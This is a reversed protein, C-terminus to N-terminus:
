FSSDKVKGVSPNQHDNETTVAGYVTDFPEYHGDENLVPDPLKHVGLFIYFSLMNNM